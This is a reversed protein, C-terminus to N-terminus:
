LAAKLSRIQGLHSAMHEVMHFLIWRRDFVRYSGDPRPPRVIEHALIEETLPECAARTHALSRELLDLFFGVDRGALAAPPAGDEPLPMGEEEEGIGLVDWVHGAPDGVLGVQALHTEAVAMHALLMGITNRGPASQHGLQAPTMGKVADRVLQHMAALEVVKIAVERSRFGPAPLLRTEVRRPDSV